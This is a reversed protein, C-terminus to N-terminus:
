FPHLPFVSTEGQMSVETKKPKKLYKEKCKKL